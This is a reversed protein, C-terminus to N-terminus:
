NNLFNQFEEYSSFKEKIEKIMKEETLEFKKYIFKKMDTSDVHIMQCIPCFKESIITEGETVDNYEDQITYEDCCNLIEIERKNEDIWRQFMEIRNEDNTNSIQELHRDNIDYLRKILYQKKEEISLSVIEISSCGKHFIHGNSCELSADYGSEIGNCINCIFSSSSSNSVFGLRIM